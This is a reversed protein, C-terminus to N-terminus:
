VLDKYISSNLIYKSLNNHNPNILNLYETYFAYTRLGNFDRLQSIKVHSIHFSFKFFQIWQKGWVIASIRPKSTNM